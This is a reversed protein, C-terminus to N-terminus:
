LKRRPLVESLGHKKAMQGPTIPRATGCTTPRGVRTEPRWELLKPRPEIASDRTQEFWWCLFEITLSWSSGNGEPVDPFKDPNHHIFLRVALLQKHSPKSIGIVKASSAM